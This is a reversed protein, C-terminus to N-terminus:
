REILEWVRAPTLPVEVTEVGLADAVANAVAAPVSMTTGEGLGKAGLTTFPSPTERHGITLEPLDPATPCLYDMLTGTVLNGDDDHVVREFLAAGAGHAFGGRVQGEVLLPNLLRGADHVTVYDLVRVVGTEREIEVVAVDALFGHAASSAVRDDADPPELNPAADFATEHLGPEVGAPLSDPNWHAAGALRRLSVSEGNGWAKGDRLEVEDPECGLQPAAIAMLKAALRAAAKHVAGVGVGSFRSSYNGSAVTWPTASTDAQTLVDIDAPSVGLADAAVQAAVTRHGQGQPTTSLQITIGGIPNIAVTAGEANGSKPLQLAREDSSQALTIYGMNSISPEVVCALGIGVLRGDSRAADRWTRREGYRALELADDLCAEYDGSDYLGGSPTRYPFDARRVLNRRRIESSDIGMRRAAIEM